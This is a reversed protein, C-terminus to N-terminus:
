AGGDRMATRLAAPDVDPLEEAVAGGTKQELRAILVAPIAACVRVLLVPLPPPGQNGFAMM